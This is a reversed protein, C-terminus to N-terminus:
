RQSKIKRGGIVAGIAAGFPVGTVAGQFVCWLNRAGHIVNCVITVLVFGAVAGCAAGLFTRWVLSAPM